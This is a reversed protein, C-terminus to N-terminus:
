RRRISVLESGHGLADRAVTDAKLHYRFFDRYLQTLLSRVASPDAEGPQDLFARAATHDVPDVIAFHNAGEIRVLLNEGDRDTLAEDFTRTVPDARTAADEGYRDASGNMVGDASGVVLMVASDVQAPPISGAPWGLMTAVMNHAGYTAVAKVEPFFRASQLSVTGGASHGILGVRDLDLLGQVPGDIKALADLVPRLSRITPASGYGDPRAADLDVGPTIGYQGAFLEGVWDYTVAVFGEAALRTALWRYGDQGVNIGPVLVVVPYPAGAPDAPIVGSLREADSGTPRAPYYVRLSATDFPARAGPIRAAWWLSRVAGAVPLNGTV